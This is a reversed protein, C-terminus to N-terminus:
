DITFDFDQCRLLNYKKVMASEMVEELHQKEKESFYTIDVENLLGLEQMGNIRLLIHEDIIGGLSAKEYKPFATKLDDIYGSNQFSMGYILMRNMSITNDFFYDFDFFLNWDSYQKLQQIANYKGIGNHGM